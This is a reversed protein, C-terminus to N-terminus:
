CYLSFHLFGFVVLLLSVSLWCLPNWSMPSIDFVLYAQILFRLAPARIIKNNQAMNIIQFCFWGSEFPDYGVNKRVRHKNALQPWALRHQGFKNLNRVTSFKNEGFKPLNAKSHSLLLLIEWFKPKKSFYITKELFFRIKQLIRRLHYQKKFINKWRM